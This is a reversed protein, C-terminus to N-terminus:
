LVSWVAAILCASGLINIWLGVGSARLGAVSAASGYANARIAELGRSRLTNGVILAVVAFALLWM